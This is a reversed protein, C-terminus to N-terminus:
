PTRRREKPIAARPRDKKPRHRAPRRRIEVEERMASEPELVESEAELWADLDKASGSPIPSNLQTKM